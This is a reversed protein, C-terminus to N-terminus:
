ELVEHSIMSDRGERPIVGVLKDGKSVAIMNVGGRMELRDGVEVANNFPHGDPVTITVEEGIDPLSALYVRNLPDGEDVPMEALVVLSIVPIAISATSAAAMSVETFDDFDIAEGSMALPIVLPVALSTVLADSLGDPTGGSLQLPILVPLAASTVLAESLEDAKSDDALPLISVVGVLAAIAIKNLNKMINYGKELM